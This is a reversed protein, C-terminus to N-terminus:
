SDTSASYYYTQYIGEFLIIILEWFFIMLNVNGTFGDVERGLFNGADDFYTSSFAGKKLMRVPFKGKTEMHMKLM